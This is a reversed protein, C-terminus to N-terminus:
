VDFSLVYKDGYNKSDYHGYFNVVKMRLCYNYSCKNDEKESCYILEKDRFIEIVDIDRLNSLLNLLLKVTRKM